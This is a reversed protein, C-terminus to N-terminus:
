NVRENVKLLLVQAGLSPSVGKFGTESMQRFKTRALVDEVDQISPAGLLHVDLKLEFPSDNGNLEANINEVRGLNMAHFGERMETLLGAMKLANELEEASWSTTLRIKMTVILTM